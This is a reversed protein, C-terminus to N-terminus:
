EQPQLRNAEVYGVVGNHEIRWLRINPPEGHARVTVIDGRHLTGISVPDNEYDDYDYRTSYIDTFNNKVVAREGVKIAAENQILENAVRKSVQASADKQIGAGILVAGIFVAINIVIIFLGSQIFSPKNSVRLYLILYRLTLYILYLITIAVGIIVMIIGFFIQIGLNVTRSEFGGDTEKRGDGYTTIVEYEPLNFASKFGGAWMRGIIPLAAIIWGVVFGLMGLGSSKYSIGIFFIAVIAWGISFFISTIKLREYTIELKEELSFKRKEQTGADSM